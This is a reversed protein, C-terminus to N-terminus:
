QSAMPAAQPLLTARIKLSVTFAVNSGAAPTGPSWSTTGVLDSSSVPAIVLPSSNTYSNNSENQEIIQGAEDVKASLPYTGATLTGANLSVTASAGAALAAVPASGALENNLYFNVTTAAAAANGINKVTANLTVSGTEVPSAPTWSMGTITLDPNAAPTGFVQFEAIQGAPAGSNAAIALQLRKVTATVPITVTNGSAPNFTYSQASVLSSFTTTNQNHGLVQINQTRAAWEAAANLKLM